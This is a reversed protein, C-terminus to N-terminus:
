YASDNGTFPIVHPVSLLDSRIAGFDSTSWILHCFKWTRDLQSPYPPGVSKGMNPPIQGRSTHGATNKQAVLQRAAPPESGRAGPSFAAKRTKFPLTGTPAGNPVRRPRHKKLQLKESATRFALWLTDRKPLEGNKRICGVPHPRM